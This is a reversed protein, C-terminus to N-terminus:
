YQLGFVVPALLIHDQHKREHMECRKSPCPFLCVIKYSATAYRFSMRYWTLMVVSIQGGLSPSVGVIWRVLQQISHHVLSLVTAFFRPCRLSGGAVTACVEKYLCAATNMMWTVPAMGAIEVDIELHCTEDWSESLQSKNQLVVESSLRVSTPRHLPVFGKSGDVSLPSPRFPANKIFGLIGKHCHIM